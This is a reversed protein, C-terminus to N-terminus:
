ECKILKYSKAFYINRLYIRGRPLCPGIIIGSRFWPYLHGLSQLPRSWIGHCQTPEEAINQDWCSFTAFVNWDESVIIRLSRPISIHASKNCSIVKPLMMLFWFTWYFFLLMYKQKIKCKAIGHLFTIKMSHKNFLCLHMCEIMLLINSCQTIRSCKLVM